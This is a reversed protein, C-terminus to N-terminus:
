RAADDINAPKSGGTASDARPPVHPSGLTSRPPSSRAPLRTRAPARVGHPPLVAARPDVRPHRGAGPPGAGEGAARLLDEPYWRRSLEKISSVDIMRYHLYNDLAPMDRAIFGRDTAISNGALPATKPQRSTSASTTSCWRSPRRWTSRRRGCRTPSGPDAHMQTSWTPCRRRARRRRRPHRRRRGRRPHQPRQRHGAGRDRDAQGHAPGPRDDRLRDVRTQGACRPLGLRGLRRAIPALVRRLTSVAARQRGVRPRGRPPDDASPLPLSAACCIAAPTVRVM